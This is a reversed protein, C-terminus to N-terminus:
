VGAKEVVGCVSDTRAAGNTDSRQCDKDHEVERYLKKLEDM